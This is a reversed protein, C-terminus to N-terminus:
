GNIFEELSAKSKQSDLYAKKYQVKIKNFIGGMMEKEGNYSVYDPFKEILKAHNDNIMKLDRGMDLCGGETGVFDSLYVFRDWVRNRYGSSLLQLALSIDEATSLDWDLNNSKPLQTGDFFFVEAAGSNDIYEKTTPPLGGTRFGGWSIGDDMWKDTESLCIDWDKATMIAKTKEGNHWPKRVACKVDDDMVFYRQNKAYDYIFRRTNTIGKIEEPMVITQKDKHLEIEHPQIVLFTIKKVFNPLGDWTIQKPRGLTPILIKNIM